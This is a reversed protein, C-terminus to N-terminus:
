RASGGQARNPHSSAGSGGDDPRVRLSLPSCPGKERETPYALLDGITIDLIYMDGDPLPLIADGDTWRWIAQGQREVPWWGRELVPDDLAVPLVQADQQLTIRRVMVGLRRDDPAWPKLLNAMVHRSCMRVDGCTAPLVFIFRDRQQIMPAIRRGDAMLHLAPDTSTEPATPLRYGRKEATTAIRTWIPEVAEPDDVFPLCSGAARLAQDNHEFPHLVLATGANEFMSRNGTDLYSEVQMGEALLVDHSDLEVHYYTIAAVDDQRITVGNLLQRVQILMGDLLLAHDPSLLVDRRPVDPAIAGALVRIPQARWPRIHRRPDLRRWGIWRVPRAAGSATLVLDGARLAEVPVPGDPTAIRTGEAFCALDNATIVTNNGVVPANFTAGSLNETPGLALDITGPSTGTVALTHGNVVNIATTDKDGDLTITDGTVFGDILGSFTGGSPTLVLAGSDGAFLITEGASVSGTVILTSGAEITTTGTGGLGGVSLTSPDIVIQGNNVLTGPDTLAAAALVLTGANSLTIGSALSSAANLTWTAASDITIHAFNTFQTFGSLTGASTGSALELTSVATAGITNGGDVTGSFVAGPDVVVRNANGTGFRVADQTDGIITGANVLTGTAGSIEVGQYASITGGAENVVLGGAVLFIGTRSSIGGANAVTGSVGTVAIGIQTGSITGGSTNSVLGGDRLFVGNEAGGIQGANVVAASGNAAGYVVAQGSAGATITGLNNLVGGPGVTIAGAVTGTNTLTGAVTLSVGNAVTNMGTLTWAANADVTVAGFDVFQTGIGDLTGASTGSALELTSVATAGITNGGDVTGSFVAGPDVVVRNANGTGFRVADQTEGIITGANVLTGAAGAIEVGQYASITGGAENVVLGGKSLVIGTGARGFIWGGFQNIVTGGDSLYVGAGGSGPFSGGILGANEVTVPFDRTFIGWFSYNIDGGTQNTVVGGESLYVGGFIDGENIVTGTAGATQNNIVGGESLYVGGSIRGGNIVTGAAGAISVGEYGSVTGGLHNIVLGGDTLYVGDQRALGSGYISGANVVTAPGSVPGYVAATGSGVVTGNNSLLGDLGLTISGFLTGDNTLSVGSGLTAAGTLTWAADADITIAAFDVFTGLNSLTGASAGSALELTSVATAGITNGGDVTGSFVAGPDVVLRNASGTGFRVADGDQGIITGANVLTGAAGAIKVGQFASITGGTENIVLGGAALVIGGASEASATIKGANVVTGYAGTIYVGGLSNKVSVISNAYDGSIQGGAQNTVLGGDFLVVGYDIQGANSVTGAESMAVNVITGSASNEVLGGHVLDVASLGALLGENLVTGRGGYDVVTFRKSGIITGHNNLLGGSGLTITSLLTGDNTLSVGSEVTGTLTWAADAAVSIAAFDIFQTGLGNLTGTSSGAALELTSVATAGITNGGDVKGSFVAGPDVIVQDTFGGVIQVADGFASGSITGANTVTAAGGSVYVGANFTGVIVGAAANSVSGGAFLVVADTEGTISGANTVTGSSGRIRIAYQYGSIRGTNGITGGARLDIGLSGAALGGSVIGANTITWAQSSGGYIATGGNTEVGGATTLSLPNGGSTLIYESSVVTGITKSM